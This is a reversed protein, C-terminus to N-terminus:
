GWNSLARWALTYPRGLHGYASHPVTRVLLGLITRHLELSSGM